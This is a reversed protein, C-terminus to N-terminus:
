ASLVDTARDGNYNWPMWREAEDAVREGRALLAKIYDFPNVGNLECTHILSMYIDGVRAGHVTKYFLSNNRHRISKKLARECINNDLPAGAVTLFRTLKDWHKFMYKTAQGLASNPEVLKDDLQKQLWAKLDSMVPASHQQHYALREDPSMKEERTKADNKYIIAIQEIVHLCQDPFADAIEVYKRRGHTLCNAHIVALEEPLYTSANHSLGDSMQVLPGRAGDCEALVAGLNEGAHNHGTFFLAVKLERFKSVIGSTFIGVRDKSGDGKSDKDGPPKAKRQAMLELVRAITDDNHIVEGRAAQRILEVFIPELTDVSRDILDWQTSAPLPIGYGQQLQELRNFPMGYGYRLIGITSTVSEDYKEYPGAAEPLPANVIYGCANCRYWDYDWIKAQVPASGTLRVIVKPVKQKYLRGKPCKPCPDKPRLTPHSVHEHEAGTYKSTGNRGHGKAKPKPEADGEPVDVEGEAGQAGGAAGHEGANDTLASSGVAPEKNRILDRLRPSQRKESSSGFLMTQLRKLSVRKKDLEDTLFQLTELAHRLKDLEAPELVRTSAADLLAEIEAADISIREITKKSNSAM